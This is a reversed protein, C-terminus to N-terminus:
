PIRDIIGATITIPRESYVFFVIMDSIIPVKMPTVIRLPHFGRTATTAKKLSKMYGLRVLTPLRLVIRMMIM